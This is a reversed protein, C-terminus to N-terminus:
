RFRLPRWRSAAVSAPGTWRRSRRSEPCPRWWCTSQAARRALSICTSTMM